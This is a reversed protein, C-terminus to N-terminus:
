FWSFLFMFRIMAMTLGTIRLLTIAARCWTFFKGPAHMVFKSPIRLPMNWLAGPFLAWSDRRCKGRCLIGTCTEPGHGYSCYVPYVPIDIYVFLCGYCLIKWYREKCSWWSRCDQNHKNKKGHPHISLNRNRIYANFDYTPVRAYPFVGIIDIIPLIIYFLAGPFNLNDPKPPWSDVSSIIEKFRELNRLRDYLPDTLLQGRSFWSPNNLLYEMEDM